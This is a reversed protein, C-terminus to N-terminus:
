HAHADPPPLILPEAALQNVMAVIAIPEALGNTDSRWRTRVYGFRDILFEMIAVNTRADSVDGDQLTRRYLGWSFLVDTTEKSAFVLGATPELDDAALTARLEPEIVIVTVAGSSKLDAARGRLAQLRARGESGRMLVLLVSQGRLDRLSSVIGNGTDFSFDIAGLWPQRSAIQEEILRAQHGWSLARLYNIVHWRDDEGVHPAVGPMPTGPKGHSIWWFMDGVTHDGTHPATLDLNPYLTTDGLPSNVVDGRGSIGHCAICNQMFVERGEAVSQANYAVGSIAYTTPYADVSSLQICAVGGFLALAGATVRARIGGPLQWPWTAATVLALTLTLYGALWAGVTPARTAIEPAFRYSFPWDIPAHVAPVLQSMLVAVLMISLALVSDVVLVGALQGQDKPPRIMAYRLWAAILLAPVLLLLVKILLAWGHPTAILAPLTGITLYASVCGTLLVGIMLPLAVTSFRKLLELKGDSANRGSDLARRALCAIAGFWLSAGVIHASQALVGLWKPEIGIAHGSLAKTALGVVVLALGVARLSLALALAAAVLLATRGLVVNGIWTQALYSWSLALSMPEGGSSLGAEIVATAVLSVASVLILSTQSVRSMPVAGDSAAPSLYALALAGAVLALPILHLWKLVLLAESM